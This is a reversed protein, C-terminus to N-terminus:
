DAGTTLPTQTSTTSRTHARETVLQEVRNVFASFEILRPDVLRLLDATTSVSSDVINRVALIEADPFSGRTLVLAMWASLAEAGAPCDRGARLEAVIVPAIRTRLKMVSDTAIQELEYMIRSNEFRKILQACYEDLDILDPLHHRASSWFSEVSHRCQPDAIAQAVTSHGAELGITALLSHAGNLLWLKRREYPEIEEVFVAGATEWRPRGAPFSGSIVWSAFPETVVPAADIWGTVQAVTAVDRDTTRPTIRDVSTSAFTVSEQMWLALKPSILDALQMLGQELVWGNRPLNDCPVIAIPGGQARRRAELGLLIRGPVTNIARVELRVARVMERLIEVDRALETDDLHPAGDLGLRYGAETVTITVVVIEQRSLVDVIAGVDAGDYMEVLNTMMEFQDGSASREVLTYLGGQRRLTEALAGSRGTFACIGWHAGDDSHATFWAQHARHFSGLGFHAIRAPPRLQKAGFTDRTLKKRATDSM